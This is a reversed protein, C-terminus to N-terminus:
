YTKSFKLKNEPLEYERLFMNKTDPKIVSTTLNVVFQHESLIQKMQERSEVKEIGATMFNLEDDSTLTLDNIEDIESM